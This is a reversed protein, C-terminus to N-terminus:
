WGSSLERKVFFIHAILARKIGYTQVIQKYSVCNLM